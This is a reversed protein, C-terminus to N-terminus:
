QAAEFLNPDFTVIPKLIRASALARYADATEALPFTVAGLKQATVAGAALLGLAERTDHPGCSYSAVLALDRFYLDNPDFSFPTGPEF